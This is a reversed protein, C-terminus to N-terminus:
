VHHRRYHERLLDIGFDDGIDRWVSHIHNGNSQTNDYEVFFSSGHIRYHHRQGRQEGGSWAFHIKGVGEREIKRIVHNAVEEPKREVYVKILSMLTDRQDATMLGAVLGVPSGVEVRPGQTMRLEGPAVPSVLVRSRLDPSLSLLLGRALDEEATLIRLGKDPGHKVEAPNAGFFSPTPAVIEGDVVTFNMSLHHGELSWGWPGGGPDGFVRLYYLGPDRNYRLFGESREIEGLRVENEIIATTQRHGRESLSAAILGDAAELQEGNMEGRTLGERERELDEKPFFHWDRREDSGFDITTKARQEPTLTSLFAKAAKAM